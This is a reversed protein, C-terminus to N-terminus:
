HEPHLVGSYQGHLVLETKGFILLTVTYIVFVPWFAVKLARFALKVYRWIFIRILMCVICIICILIVKWYLSEQEVSKTARVIYRYIPSKQLMLFDRGWKLYQWKSLQIERSVISNWNLHMRMASSPSM